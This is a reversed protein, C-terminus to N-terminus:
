YNDSNVKLISFNQQLHRQLIGFIGSRFLGPMHLVTLFQLKIRYQM